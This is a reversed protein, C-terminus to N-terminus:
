ARIGVMIARALLFTIEMSNFAFTLDRAEHKQSRQLRSCNTVVEKRLYKRLEPIDRMNERTEPWEKKTEKALNRSHGASFMGERFSRKWHQSGIWPFVWMKLELGLRKGSHRLETDFKRSSIKM